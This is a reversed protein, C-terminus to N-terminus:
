TVRPATQALAGGARHLGPGSAQAGLVISRLLMLLGFSSSGAFQRRESAEPSCAELILGGPMEPRNVPGRCAARDLGRPLCAWAGKGAHYRWTWSATGRRRAGYPKGPEADNGPSCCGGM